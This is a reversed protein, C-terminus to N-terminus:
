TGWPCCISKEAANSTLAGNTTKSKPQCSTILAVTGLISMLLYSFKKM